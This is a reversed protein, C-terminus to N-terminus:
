ADERVDGTAHREVVRPPTSREADRVAEALDEDAMEAEVRERAEDADRGTMPLWVRMSLTVEVEVLYDDERSRGGMDRAIRDFVGCMQNDDAVQQAAAWFTNLQPSRMSTIPETRAAAIEQRLTNVSTRLREVDQATPTIDSM